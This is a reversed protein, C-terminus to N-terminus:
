YAQIAPMFSAQCSVDFVCVQAAKGILQFLQKTVFRRVPAHIWPQHVLSSIFVTKISANARRPIRQSFKSREIVALKLFAPFMVTDPSALHVPKVSHQIAATGSHSYSIPHYNISHLGIFVKTLLSTLSLSTVPPLSSSLSLRLSLQLVPVKEEDHCSIRMGEDREESGLHFQGERM